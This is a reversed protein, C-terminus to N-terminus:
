KAIPFIIQIRKNDDSIEVGGRVDFIYNIAEFLVMDKEQSKYQNICEQFRKIVVDKMPFILEIMNDRAIISIERNEALFDASWWLIDSIARIGMESDIMITSEIAWEIDVTLKVVKRKLCMEMREYIELVLTAMSFPRINMEHAFPDDVERMISSKKRTDIIEFEEILEDNEPIERHKSESEPISHLGKKNKAHM